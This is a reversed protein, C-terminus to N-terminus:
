GNKSENPKVGPATTTPAAKKAPATTAKAPPTVTSTTSRETDEDTKAKEDTVDEDTEEEREDEDQTADVVKIAGAEYLKGLQEKTLKSPDLPQGPLAVQGNYKVRTVAVVLKKAM